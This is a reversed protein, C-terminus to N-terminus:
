TTLSAEFRTRPKRGKSTCSIPPITRQQSGQWENGLKCARRQQKQAIHVPLTDSLNCLSGQQHFDCAYLGVLSCSSHSCFKSLVERNFNHGQQLNQMCPLYCFHPGALALCQYSHHGSNEIRQNAFSHLHLGQRQFCEQKMAHTNLMHKNTHSSPRQRPRRPLSPQM